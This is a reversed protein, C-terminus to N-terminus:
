AQQMAHKMVQIVPHYHLLSFFISFKIDAQDLQLCFGCDCMWNDIRM